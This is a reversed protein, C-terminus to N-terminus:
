VVRPSRGPARGIRGRPARLRRAISLRDEEGVRGGGEVSGEFGLEAREVDVPHGPGSASRHIESARRLALRFDSEPGRHALLGGGARDMPEVRRRHGADGRALDDLTRSRDDLLEDLVGVIREGRLDVDGDPAAPDLPDPDGIVADPDQGGLEGERDLAM